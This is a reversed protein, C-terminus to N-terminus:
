DTGEEQKETQDERIYWQKQIRFMDAYLGGSAMLEDHSGSQVIRGSDMVLIRDTIMTSALRHTIFVATKEEAMEAFESYIRSESVPDVKSTPEDLILIPKDGMFARAIAIRQWQGGSLDIGNEFERGLLTDIGEPLGEAFSDVGAKHMAESLKLMDNMKDPNGVGINEKLTICYKMFDQFVAGFLRCRVSWSYSNLPKGGIRIEGSDPEFLGLLLKIMTSKGEGNKGVISVKEGHAIKFSIGDLIKKSTGPYTFSVNDFEIEYSEPMANEDGYEEESLGFYSDYFEFAKMYRGSVRISEVLGNLGKRTFLGTFLTLSLALLEGIRIQGDAYLLLLLLATGIQVLKTINQKLFNHRLHKFFYREYERNRKRVRGRYVEILYDSIGLLANERVHSRSRLMDGLVSYSREQGWYQEMEKYIDYNSRQALWTELAFPILIVPLFWWKVAAFLYLTGAAAIGASIIQQITQPFLTLMVKEAKYYAKDIIEMSSPSELHEYRLRKLKQLMRGKYATRLILQCKPRIYSSDLIDGAVVPLLASLVFLILYPVYSVFPTEGSAVSLGLDFIRSNIWVSVPVNIGSLIASAFAAAIILPSEQFLIHLIESYARVARKM